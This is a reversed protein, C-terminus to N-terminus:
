DSCARRYAYVESMSRCLRSERKALREDTQGYFVRCKLHSPMFGRLHFSLECHAPQYLVPTCYKCGSKKVVPCASDPAGIALPVSLIPDITNGKRATADSYQALSYIYKSTVNSVRKFLTPNFPIFVQSLKSVKPPPPILQHKQYLTPCSLM